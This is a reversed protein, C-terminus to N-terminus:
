SQRASNRPEDRSEFFGESTQLAGEVAAATRIAGNKRLFALYGGIESPTFPRLVSLDVPNAPM